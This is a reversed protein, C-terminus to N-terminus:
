EDDRGFVRPIPLFERVVVCAAVLAFVWWLRRYREGRFGAPQASEVSSAEVHFLTSDLLM